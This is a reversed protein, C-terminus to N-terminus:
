SHESCGVDLRTPAPAQNLEHKMPPWQNYGIFPDNSRCALILEKEKKRAESDSADASEWLVDKTITFSRRQERTFDRAILEGSPSGFYSITNTLDLGVYIKGNPYTIKYVVKV